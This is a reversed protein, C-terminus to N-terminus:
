SEYTTKEFIVREIKEVRQSIDAMDLARILQGSLVGICNAIKADMEGSRVRNVTDELLIVIHKPKSLKVPSLPKKIIMANARGGKSQSEKKEKNTIDPNHHYCYDGGGMANAGCKSGDSKIYKCKM